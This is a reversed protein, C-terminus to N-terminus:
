GNAWGGSTNRGNIANPPGATPMKRKTASNNRQRQQANNQLGGQGNNSYGNM